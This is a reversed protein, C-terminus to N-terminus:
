NIIEELSIEPHRYRQMQEEKGLQIAEQPCHHYCALCNICHHQWTPGPSKSKSFKINDVPCVDECIGCNDCKEDVWLGKDLM